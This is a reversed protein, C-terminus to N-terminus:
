ITAQALADGLSQQFGMSTSTAGSVIDVNASQAQIAESQLLPIAQSSIQQSTRRDSPYQLFEVSVLRGGQVLAKVQVLGYFVDVAPGTYSGDVYQGKPKPPPVPTPVPVPVPAPIPVPTPTPKPNLPPVSIPPTLTPRSSPTTITPLQIDQGQSAIPASVFTLSKGGVYQSFAYAASACVVIFSLFFKKM